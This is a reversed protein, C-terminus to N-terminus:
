RPRWVAVSSFPPWRFIVTPLPWTCSCAFVLENVSSLSRVYTSGDPYRYNLPEGRQHKTKMDVLMETEPQARVKNILDQTINRDAMKTEIYDLTQSEDECLDYPM